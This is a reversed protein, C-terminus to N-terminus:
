AQVHYTDKVMRMRASLNGGFETEKNMKDPFEQYSDVHYEVMQAGFNMLTDIDVINPPILGNEEQNKSEERPIETPTANM